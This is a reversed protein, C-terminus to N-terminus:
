LLTLSQGLMELHRLYITVTIVSAFVLSLTPVYVIYLLYRYYQMLLFTRNGMGLIPEGIFLTVPGASSSTVLM